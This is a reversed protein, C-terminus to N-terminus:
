RSKILTNNIELEVNDYNEPHIMKDKEIYSASFYGKTEPIYYNDMFNKSIYDYDENNYQKDSNINYLFFLILNLNQKTSSIDDEHRITSEFINMVNEIDSDDIDGLLSLKERILKDSGTFYYYKLPGDGVLEILIKTAKDEMLSVSDKKPLEMGYYEKLIIDTCANTLINSNYENPFLKVFQETMEKQYVEDYSFNNRNAYQRCNNENMVIECNYLENVGIRYFFDSDAVGGAKRSDDDTITLNKLNNDIINANRLIKPVVFENKQGIYYQKLYKIYDNIFEENWLIDKKDDSLNQNSYFSKKINELDLIAIMSDMSIETMKYSFRAYLTRNKLLKYNELDYNKYHINFYPTDLYSSYNWGGINMYLWRIEFNEIMSCHYKNYYLQKLISDIIILNQEFQEQSLTKPIYAHSYKFLDFLQEIYAEELYPELERKTSEVNGTFQYEALPESGIIEMLIKLRITEKPYAQYYLFENLYEDSITEACVERLFSYQNPPQFVHVWEHLLTDVYIDEKHTIGFDNSLKDIDLTITRQSLNWTGLVTTDDIQMKKIQLNPLIDNYLSAAYEKNKNIYPCAFELFDNNLLIEKDSESINQNNKILESIIEPTLEPTNNMWESIHQSKYNDFEMSNSNLKDIVLGIEGVVTLMYIGMIVLAKVDNKRKNNVSNDNNKTQKKDAIIVDEFNNIFLNYNEKGNLFYHKLNTDLDLIVDYTINDSEYDEIKKTNKGIKLKNLEKFIDENLPYFRNNEYIYGYIKPNEDNINDSFVNYIRNNTKLYMIQM